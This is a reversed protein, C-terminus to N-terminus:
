CMLLLVSLMTHTFDLCNRILAPTSALHISHSLLYPAPFQQAHLLGAVKIMIMKLVAKIWQIVGSYLLISTRNDSNRGAWKVRGIMSLLTLVRGWRLSSADGQQRRTRLPFRGGRTPLVDYDRRYYTVTHDVSSASTEDGM